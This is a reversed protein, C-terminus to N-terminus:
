YISHLNDHGFRILRSVLSFRHLVIIIRNVHRPLLYAYSFVLLGFFVLTVVFVIWDVHRALLGFRALSNNILKRNVENRLRVGGHGARSM